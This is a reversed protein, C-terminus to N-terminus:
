PSRAHDRRRVGRVRDTLGLRPAAALREPTPPPLDASPDRRPHSGPSPGRSRRSSRPDTGRRACSVRALPAPRCTSTRGAAPRKARTGPPVIPWRATKRSRGCSSSAISGPASSGRRRSSPAGKPVAVDAASAHNTLTKRRSEPCTDRLGFALTLTVKGSGLAPLETSANTALGGCVEAAPGSGLAALADSLVRPRGDAVGFTLAATAAGTGDGDLPAVDACGALLAVGLLCPISTAARETIPRFM